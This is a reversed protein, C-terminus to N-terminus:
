ICKIIQKLDEINCIKMDYLETNEIPRKFSQHSGHVSPYNPVYAKELVTSLLAAAWSLTSCSCVLIEANKMITFDTLVDNTEIVTNAYKETFFRLYGYEIESTPNNLVFCISESPYQSVIKDLVVKISNPDIVQSIHIFDELRLHVVIKYIKSPIAPIAKNDSEIFQGIKFNDGRDTSIIIDPNKRMFERIENKYKVFIMDHQYYGNFLFSQGMDMCGVSEDNMMMMRMRMWRIFYNDDIIMTNNPVNAHNHIQITNDNGDDDVSVNNAIAFVINAFLRFLSNGLRGANYNYIIM